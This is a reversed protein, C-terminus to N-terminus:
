RSVRVERYTVKASVGLSKLADVFDPSGARSVFVQGDDLTQAVLFPQGYEDRLIVTRANLQVPESRISFDGVVEVKV